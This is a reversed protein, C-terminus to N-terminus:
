PPSLELGDFTGALTPVITLLVFAPLVALVLPMLMRVPVRRADAQARRRRSERAEDALRQLIPGIETGYHDAGVVARRLAAVPVGMPSLAAEVAEALRQGRDIRDCADGLAESVPGLRHNSVSTLALTMSGGATLSLALLDIVEPLERVTSRQRDIAVRRRVLVSRVWLGIACAVGLRIDVLAALVATGTLWFAGSRHESARVLKLRDLRNPRPRRAVAAGSVVLFWAAPLLDLWM